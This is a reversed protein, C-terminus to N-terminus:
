QGIRWWSRKSNFPDRSRIAEMIEKARKQEALIRKTRPSLAGPPRRKGEEMAALLIYDPQEYSTKITLRERLTGILLTVLIILLGLFLLYTLIDFKKRM